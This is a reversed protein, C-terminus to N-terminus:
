QKVIENDLSVISAIELGWPKEQTRRVKRIKIRYTVLTDFVNRGYIESHKYTKTYYIEENNLAEMEFQGRAPIITVIAKNQIILSVYNSIDFATMLKTYGDTSLYMKAKELQYKFNKFHLGYINPIAEDLFAIIVASDYKIEKVPELLTQGGDSSVIYHKVSDKAAFIGIIILLIIMVFSFIFVITKMFSISSEMKSLNYRMGRDRIFVDGAGHDLNSPDSEKKERKENPTIRKERNKM